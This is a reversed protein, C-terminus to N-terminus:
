PCVPLPFVYVINPGCNSPFKANAVSSCDSSPIIGRAVWSTNLYFSHLPKGDTATM